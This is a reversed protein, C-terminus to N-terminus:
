GGERKSDGTTARKSTARKHTLAKGTTNTGFHIAYVIGMIVLFYYEFKNKTLLRLTNVM